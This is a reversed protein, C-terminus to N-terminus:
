HHLGLQPFTLVLLGIVLAAGTALYDARTIRLPQLHRAEGSYARAQAAFVIEDARRLSSVIITLLLLQVARRRQRRLGGRMRLAHWTNQVTERLVPLMNLAVGLAFGLGRLGVRELLYAVQGVSLSTAMGWATIMIAVARLLMQAGLALGTPSWRMGYFSADHDGLLWAGSSLVLLAPFWVRRSCLGALVGPYLLLAAGLTLGCVVAVRWGTALIATLVVITAVGLYGAPGLRFRPPRGATNVVSEM